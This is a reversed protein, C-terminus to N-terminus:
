IHLGNLALIGDIKLQFDRLSRIIVYEECHGSCKAQFEKQADSQYGTQTKFEIFYLKKNWFFLTDAAGKVLGLARKQMTAIGHTANNDILIFHGRTEPYKNWLWMVCAAQIKAEESQGKSM